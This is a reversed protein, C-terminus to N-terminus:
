VAWGDSVTLLSNLTNELHDSKVLVDKWRAPISQVGYLAGAIQGTVAGVTDADHGLNVAKILAQEFSDTTHVSWLAAELTHVVYGESSIEDRSKQTWSGNSLEIVEPDWATTDTVRYSKELPMGQFLRHLIISLLECCDAAKQSAHTTYSQTRALQRLTQLDENHVITLPALRMITGNGDSSRGNSSAVLQGTRNFRSLSRLTNQGFGIARSGSCHENRSAWGWFRNLLDASDLNRDHILSHALCLAMSTDDTWGGAPLKFKGGPIMDRVEPHRDRPYFELPAGLADGVVLGWFTGSLRDQKNM